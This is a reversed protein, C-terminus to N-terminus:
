RNVVRGCSWAQWTYTQSFLYWAAAINAEPDFISANPKGIANARAPWLDELHQFLGKAHGYNTNIPNVAQPNGRSECQMVQLAEHRYQETTFYKNVLSQWRLVNASFEGTDAVSGSTYTPTAPTYTAATLPANFESQKWGIGKSLRAIYANTAVTQLDANDQAIFLTLQWRPNFTVPTMNVALPGDPSSFDKLYVQFDWGRPPYSFRLPPKNHKSLNDESQQEGITKMRQLFRVQEQWGGVGFSGTLIMNGVTTGFIQVVRGGVSNMTKTKADYTWQINDPDIRFRYGAFTAVGM